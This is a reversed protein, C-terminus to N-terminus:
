TQNFNLKFKKSMYYIIEENFYDYLPDIINKIKYMYLM